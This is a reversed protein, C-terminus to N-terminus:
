SIDYTHGLIRGSIYGLIDRRLMTLCYFRLKIMSSYNSWSWNKIDLDVKLFLWMRLLKKVYKSQFLGFKFGYFM